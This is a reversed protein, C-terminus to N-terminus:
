FFYQKSFVVHWYIQCLAGKAKVKSVPLEATSDTDERYCVLALEFWDFFVLNDFILLFKHQGSYKCFSCVQGALCAPLLSKSSFFIIFKCGFPNQWSNILNLAELSFKM